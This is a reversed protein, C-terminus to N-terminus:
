PCINEITNVFQLLIHPSDRIVVSLLCTGGIRLFDERYFSVMGFGFHIWESIDEGYYVPAWVSM